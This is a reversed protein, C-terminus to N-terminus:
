RLLAQRAWVKVQLLEPPSASVAEAVSGFRDILAKAIPKTDARPIALFLMLELLEYDTVAEPGGDIFRKRL